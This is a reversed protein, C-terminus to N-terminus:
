VFERRVDITEVSEVEDFSKIEEEIKELFEPKTEDILFIINLQNLGFAVPKIESKGFVGYKEIVEKAKKEVETLDINVDKPMIRITVVVNAM